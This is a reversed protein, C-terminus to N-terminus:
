DLQKLHTFTSENKTIFNIKLSIQLEDPNYGRHDLQNIFAFTSDTQDYYVSQMDLNM